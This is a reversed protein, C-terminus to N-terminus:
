RSFPLSLRLDDGLELRLRAIVPCDDQQQPFLTEPLADVRATPRVALMEAREMGTM